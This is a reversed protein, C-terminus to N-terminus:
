VVGLLVADSRRTGRVFLFCSIKCSQFQIFCVLFCQLAASLGPFLVACSLFEALHAPDPLVYRYLWVTESSDSVNVVDAAIQFGHDSPCGKCDGENRLTPVDQGRNKGSAAGAWKCLIDNFTSRVKDCSDCVAPVIFDRVSADGLLFASRYYAM